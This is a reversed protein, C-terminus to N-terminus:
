AQSIKRSLYFLYPLLYYVVFKTRPRLMHKSVFTSVNLGSDDGAGGRGIKESWEQWLSINQTVGDAQVLM